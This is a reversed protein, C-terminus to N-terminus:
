ARAKLWLLRAGRELDAVRLRAAESCRISIACFVELIATDRIGTGGQMLLPLALLREIESDILIQIPLGTKCNPLELLEYDPSSSLIWRASLFQQVNKEPKPNYERPSQEYSSGQTSDSHHIIQIASKERYLRIKFEKTHYKITFSCCLVYGHCKGVAVALKM